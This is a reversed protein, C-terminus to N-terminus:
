SRATAAARPLLLAEAGGMDAHRMPQATVPTDAPLARISALDVNLSACECTETLRRWGDDYFVDLGHYVNVLVLVARVRRASDPLFIRGEAKVNRSVLNVAGAFEAGRVPVANDQAALPSPWVSLCFLGVASTGLFM